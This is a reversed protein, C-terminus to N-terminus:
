DIAVKEGATVGSEIITYGDVTDGTVVDVAKRYGEEDVVYVFYEGEDKEYIATEEVYIVNEIVPKEITMSLTDEESVGTMDSIPEFLIEQMQKGTAEDEYSSVDIVKMEYVAVDFEAEYVDGITFEFDDDTTATYNSSGSVVTILKEGSSFYGYQLWENVYTVTGGREAIICYNNYKETQEEIYIKAIKVDNQLEAIDSSYDEGDIKGLKQYHEILLEAEEMQETYEDIIEQIEDAKFRVMVDGASVTDGESVNVSEIELDAQEMKYNKTEYEDPMLSLTLVPAIDGSKVTTTEHETKIYTSLHIEPKSVNASSNGCGALMSVTVAACILKATIRMKRKRM